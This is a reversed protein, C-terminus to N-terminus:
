RAAETVSVAYRALAARDVEVGLGGAAPLRMAGECVPLPAALLDSAVLHATALGCAPSGEPQAAAVHLAAAIGVGSDFTTTVTVSIGRQRGLRAIDLAPGIGGVVLPKVVLVDAAGADLVRRAAEVDTVAEDAAVRVGAAERVRRMAELDHSPVPQEVYEIDYGAFARLAAVARDEDWAANADLRLAVGAGVADRVAAVRAREEAISEAVGVKLKVTRFGADRAERAAASARDVEPDAVLANVDVRRRLRHGSLEAAPVGALRARADWLAIDVGARAARKVPDGASVLALARDLAAEADRAECGELMPAIDGLARLVDRQAEREGPGPYPSAEGFGTVGADTELEVIVGYRM